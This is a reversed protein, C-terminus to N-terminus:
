LLVIIPEEFTGRPPLAFFNLWALPYRILNKAAINISLPDDSGSKTSGKRGGAADRPSRSLRDDQNGRQGGPRGSGSTSPTAQAHVQRSPFTSPRSRSARPERTGSGVRAEALVASAPVVPRGRGVRMRTSTCSIERFSSHSDSCETRSGRSTRRHSRYRLKVSWD